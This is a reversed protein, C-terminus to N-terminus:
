IAYFKSGFELMIERCSACPGLLDEDECVILRVNSTVFNLFMWRIM